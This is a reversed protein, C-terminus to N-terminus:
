KKFKKKLIPIDSNFNSQLFNRAMCFCRSQYRLVSYKLLKSWFVERSSSLIAATMRSSRASAMLTRLRLSSALNQESSCRSMIPGKWPRWKANCRKVAFPYSSLEWIWRRGGGCCHLLKEPPPPAAKPPVYSCCSDQYPWCHQEVIFVEQQVVELHLELITCFFNCKHITQM